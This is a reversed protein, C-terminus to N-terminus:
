KYDFNEEINQLHVFVSRVCLFEMDAMYSILKM